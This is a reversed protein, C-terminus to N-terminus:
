CPPLTGVLPQFCVLPFLTFFGRAGLIQRYPVLAHGSIPASATLILYEPSGVLKLHATFAAPRALTKMDPPGFAGVSSVNRLWTFPAISAPAVPNATPLFTQCCVSGSFIDFASRSIM